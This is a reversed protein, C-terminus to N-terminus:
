SETVRGDDLHWRRTAHVTELMRRDHTVLLVTGGFSDLSTELQEIAPLDLHDPPALTVAGEEPPQEGALLRLLTSKGAGNPGVLGVVAGRGVVLDLGRSALPCRAGDGARHDEASREDGPRCYGGRCRASHGRRPRPDTGPHAQDRTTKKWATTDRCFTSYRSM